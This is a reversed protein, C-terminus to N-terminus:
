RLFYERVLRRSSENSWLGTWSIVFREFARRVDGYFIRVSQFFNLFVISDVLVTGTLGCLSSAATSQNVPFLRFAITEFKEGILGM